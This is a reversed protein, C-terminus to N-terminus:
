LKAHDFLILENDISLYAVNHSFPATKKWLTYVQIFKFRHACLLFHHILGHNEQVVSFKPRSNHKQVNLGVASFKGWVDIVLDAHVDVIHLACVLNFIPLNTNEKRLHGIISVPYIPHWSIM